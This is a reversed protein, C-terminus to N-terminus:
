CESRLIRMREQELAHSVCDGTKSSNCGIPFACRRSYNEGSVKGDILWVPQLFFFRRPQLSSFDATDEPRTKNKKLQKNM